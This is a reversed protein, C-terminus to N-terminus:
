PSLPGLEAEEASLPETAQRWANPLEGSRIRAVLDNARAEGEVLGFTVPVPAPLNEYDVALTNFMPRDGLWLASLAYMRGPLPARKLLWVSACLLDPQKVLEMMAWAQPPVRGRPGVAPGRVREVTLLLAMARERNWKEMPRAWDAETEETPVVGRLWNSREDCKVDDAATRTVHEAAEVQAPTQPNPNVQALMETRPRAGSETVVSHQHERHSRHCGMMAILAVLLVRTKTMTGLKRMERQRFEGAQVKSYM